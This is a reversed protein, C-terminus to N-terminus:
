VGVGCSAETQGELCECNCVSGGADAEAKLCVCDGVGCGQKGASLDGSSMEGDAVRDKDDM